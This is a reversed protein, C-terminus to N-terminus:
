LPSFLQFPGPLRSRASFLRWGKEQSTLFKSPLSPNFYPRGRQLLMLSFDDQRPQNQRWSKNASMIAEFSAQSGRCVNAALTEAFREFGLEEGNNNRSEVLGDTYLILTDGPELAIETKNFRSKKFSGLAAGPLVIEEASKTGARVLFPNCGGANAYVVKHAATDVMLYQFTMIKRQKKTKTRYILNHLRALLESPKDLLDLSNLMASKAMAMIMAAGVGHGAVDGLVMIFRHDDLPFVDLYDGGLDAMTITKCFLDYDGTDVQQDPFLQQQVDRAITMEELDRLATDFVRSMQGFEDNGQSGIRYSFDREKIAKTAFQLRSVPQLLTQVFILSIGAVLLINILMVGWLQHKENALRRDIESIPSLAILCVDAITKSVFGTAMWTEKGLNLFEPSPQPFYNLRSFLERFKRHQNFPRITLEKLSNGFAYVVKIGYANGQLVSDASKMFKRAQAAQNFHFMFLYDALNESNLSLFHMFTPHREMGMGLNEVHELLRLFKFFTTGMSNQFISEMMMEAEAQLMGPLDTDNYYAIFAAGCKSLIQNLQLRNDNQYPINELRNAGSTDLLYSKERSLFAVDSIAPFTTSAVVMFKGAVNTMISRFERTNEETLTEKRLIQGLKEINKIAFNKIRHNESVYETEIRNLFNLAEIRREDILIQRKQELYEQELATMILFPFVNVCVILGVVIYKISIGAYFNGLQTERLVLLWGFALILTFLFTNKFPQGPDPRPRFVCFFLNEDIYRATFIYDNNKSIAPARLRFYKKLKLMELKTLVGNGDYFFNDGLIAFLSDMDQNEKVFQRLGHFKNGIEGDLIIMVGFRDNFDAWLSGSDSNYSLAGLIAGNRFFVRQLTKSEFHPGLVNRIFVDDEDSLNLWWVSAANRLIRAVRTWDTKGGPRELRNVLVKGNADWILWNIKQRHKRSLKKLALNLDDHTNSLSFIRGLEHCWFRRNDAAHQLQRASADANNGLFREENEVQREFRFSDLLSFAVVPMLFGVVVLATWFLVSTRQRKDAM